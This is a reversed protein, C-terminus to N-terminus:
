NSGFVRNAMYDGALEVLEDEADEGIAMYERAPIPGAHYDDGEFRGASGYNQVAAYKIGTVGYTLSNSEILEVHNAGAETAARELAGSLILLPHPGYRAVTSPAHEPWATGDATESLDFNAQVQERVVPIFQKLLPKFNANVSDAHAALERSFDDANMGNEIAM